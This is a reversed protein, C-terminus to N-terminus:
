GHPAKAILRAYEVPDLAGPIQFVIQVNAQTVDPKERYGFRTNLLYMCALTDGAIAKAFLTGYIAQHEVSRGEDLADQAAPDETKIRTWTGPAMGLSRAIDKESFGRSALDTIKALGGKPLLKKVRSM